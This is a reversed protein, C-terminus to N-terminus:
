AKRKGAPVGVGVGVGVAVVVGVAVAVAVLVGVGVGVPHETVLATQPLMMKVGGVSKTTL